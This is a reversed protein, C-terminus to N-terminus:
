AFFIQRAPHDFDQRNVALEETAQQDVDGGANPPAIGIRCAGQRRLIGSCQTAAHNQLLHCSEGPVPLLM